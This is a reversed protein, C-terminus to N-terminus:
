DEIDEYRLDSQEALYELYEEHKNEREQREEYIDKEIYRDYWSPLEYM